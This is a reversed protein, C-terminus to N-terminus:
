KPTLVADYKQGNITIEHKGILPQSRNIVIGDRGHLICNFANPFGVHGVMKDSNGEYLEGFYEDEHCSRDYLGKEFFFVMISKGYLRIHEIGTCKEFDLVLGLQGHRGLYNSKLRVVDWPQPTEGTEYKM